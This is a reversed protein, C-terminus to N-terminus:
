HALVRAAYGDAHRVMTGARFGLGAAGGGQGDAVTGM